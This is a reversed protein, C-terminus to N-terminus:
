SKSAVGLNSSPLLPKAPGSEHTRGDLLKLREAAREGDRPRNRPSIHKKQTRIVINYCLQTLVAM